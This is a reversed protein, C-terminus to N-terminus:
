TWPPPYGRPQPAENMSLHVRTQPNAYYFYYALNRAVGYFIVHPLLQDSQALQHLLQQQQASRLSLFPMPKLDGLWKCTSVMIERFKSNSEAIILFEYHLDLDTASPGFEDAPIIANLFSALTSRDHATIQHQSLAAGPLACCALFSTVLKLADRRRLSFYHTSTNDSESM